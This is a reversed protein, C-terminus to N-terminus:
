FFDKMHSSPVTTCTHGSFRMYAACPSYPRYSTFYKGCFKEVALIRAISGWTNYIFQADRHEPLRPNYLHPHERVLEILRETKETSIKSKPMTTETFPFVWRQRWIWPDGMKRWGIECGKAAHIAVHLSETQRMRLWECGCSLDCATDPCISDGEDM